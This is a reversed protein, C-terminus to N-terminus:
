LELGGSEESSLALLDFEEEEAPTEEPEPIELWIKKEMVERCVAALLAEGPQREVLLQAGNNVARLRQSILYTLRAKGGAAEALRDIPINHLSEYITM